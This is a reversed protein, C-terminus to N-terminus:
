KGNDFKELEKKVEIYFDYVSVIEMGYMHHPTTKNEMKLVEDIHILACARTHDEQCPEDNYCDWLYAHKRFKTLLEEAKEKPTM